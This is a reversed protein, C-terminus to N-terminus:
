CVASVLEWVGNHFKSDTQILQTCHGSFPAGSTLM